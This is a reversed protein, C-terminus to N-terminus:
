RAPVRPRSKGPSAIARGLFRYTATREMVFSITAGALYQQKKHEPIDYYQDVTMEKALKRHDRGQLHITPRKTRTIVLRRM